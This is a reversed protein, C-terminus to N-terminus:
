CPVFSGSLVFLALIIEQNLFRIKWTIDFVLRNVNDITREAQLLQTLEAVIEARNAACAQYLLNEAAVVTAILLRPDSCAAFNPRRGVFPQQPLLDVKM